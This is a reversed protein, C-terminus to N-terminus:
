PMHQNLYLTFKEFGINGSSQVNNFNNLVTGFGNENRCIVGLRVGLHMNYVNNYLQLVYNSVM